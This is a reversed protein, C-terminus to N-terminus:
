DEGSERFRPFSTVFSISKMHSQIEGHLTISSLRWGLQEFAPQRKVRYTRKKKHELSNERIIKETITLAESGTM